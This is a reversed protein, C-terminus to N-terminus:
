LINQYIKFERLFVRDPYSVTNPFVCLRPSSGAVRAKKGPLNSPLLLVPHFPAHPGDRDRRSGLLPLHPARAERAGGRRGAQRALVLAARQPVQLSRGSPRTPFLSPRGAGPVASVNLFGWRSERELEEQIIKWCMGHDCPFSTSHTSFSFSRRSGGSQERM